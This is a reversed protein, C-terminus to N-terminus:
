QGTLHIEQARTSFRAVLPTLLAITQWALLLAVSCAATGVVLADVLLQELLRAQTAGISSRIALERRRQMMRAMTLNAINACAILLVFATAAFLMMFAPKAQRALEERLSAVRIGWDDHKPYSDGELERMRRTLAKMEQESQTAGVGPKLRAFATMMRSRRSARFQPSDRTPCSTTPMYVDVKSPYEPLPPMVGVITHVRDNMRVTTGVVNPDGGFSNKFYRHSLLLVAPAGHREDRATFNRGHLPKVGLYDFYAASVVGTDVAQSEARGLLIFRMAHFEVLGDITQSQERLDDLEKVSFGTSARRAQLDFLNLQVLREDSAFPLPKIAVAHIVSFLATV